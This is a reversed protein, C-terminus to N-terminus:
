LLLNVTWRPTPAWNGPVSISDWGSDDYDTRFFDIPREDANPVYHFTWQGNLSTIYPSQFLNNQPIHARPYLKNVEFVAPDQWETFTQASLGLATCLIILYLLVKKM